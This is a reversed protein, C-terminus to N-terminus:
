MGFIQIVPTSVTRLCLVVMSSPRAMRMKTMVDNIARLLEVKHSTDREERAVALEKAADAAAQDNLAAAVLPLLDSISMNDDSMTSSLYHGRNDIPDTLM